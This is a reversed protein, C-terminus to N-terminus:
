FDQYVVCVISCLYLVSFFHQIYQVSFLWVFFIFRKLFLLLLFRTCHFTYQFYRFFFFLVFLLLYIFGFQIFDIMKWTSNSSKKAKVIKLTCGANNKMTNTWLLVWNEDIWFSFRANKRSPSMQIEKM